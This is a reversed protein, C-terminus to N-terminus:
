CKGLPSRHRSSGQAIERPFGIPALPPPVCRRQKKLGFVLLPAAEPPFDTPAFPPSLEEASNGLSFWYPRVTAPRM